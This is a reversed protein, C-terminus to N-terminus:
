QKAKKASLVIVGASTLLLLLAVLAVSSDGTHPNSKQPVTVTFPVSVAAGDVTFKAAVEHKGASLTKLYSDKLTIITSGSKTTYNSADVTKGDVTLETFTDLPYDITPLILDKGSTYTPATPPPTPTAPAPTPTVVPATPEPTAPAGDGVQILYLGSVTADNDEAILLATVGSNFLIRAPDEESSGYFNPWITWEDNTWIQIKACQGRLTLESDSTVTIIERSNSRDTSSVNAKDLLNGYAALDAETIQRREIADSFNLGLGQSSIYLDAALALPAGLAITLALVLALSLIKKKM